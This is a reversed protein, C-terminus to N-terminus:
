TPRPGAGIAEAIGHDTKMNLFDYLLGKPVLSVAQSEFCVDTPNGGVRRARYFRAKSTTREVDGIFGIIEVKLGAEEFCEKIATAQLSMGPDATGKPLTVKYGGYANTPHVLWCRGDVEEVVVGAAAKKGAALTFPPEDLDEMIGDVFDWGEPTQPHDRWAQFPVGHLSLPVDGGPVFTAVADPNHWTSPASAHSPKKVEVLEGKEGLKPHHHVPAPSVVHGDDREHPKVYVGDKRSYGPIHAKALDENM